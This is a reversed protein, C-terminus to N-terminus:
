VSAGSLRLGWGVLVAALSVGAIFLAITGHKSGSSKLQVAYYMAYGSFIVGIGHMVFFLVVGLVSRFIVGWLAGNGEASKPTNSTSPARYYDVHPPAAAQSPQPFLEAHQGAQMVQGTHFDRISTQTTIRGEAVWRKLTAIDTPGYEKGDAGTVMYEM